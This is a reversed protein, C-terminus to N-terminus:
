HISHLVYNEYEACTQKNLTKKGIALLMIKLEKHTHIQYDTYDLFDIHTSHRLFFNITANILKSM